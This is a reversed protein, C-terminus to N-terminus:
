SVIAKRKVQKAHLADMQLTCMCKYPLCAEIVIRATTKNNHLASESAQCNQGEAGLVLCVQDQRYEGRINKFYLNFGKKHRFYAYLHIQFRIARRCLVRKNEDWVSDAPYCLDDPQTM